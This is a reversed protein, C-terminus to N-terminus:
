ELLGAIEEDEPEEELGYLHSDKNSVVPCKKDRVDAFRIPDPLREPLEYEFKKGAFFSPENKQM